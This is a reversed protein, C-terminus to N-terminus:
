VGKCVTRTVYSIYSDCQVSQPRHFGYELIVCFSACALLQATFTDFSVFFYCATHFSLCQVIFV